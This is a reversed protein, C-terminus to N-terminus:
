RLLLLEGREEFSPHSALKSFLPICAVAWFFIHLLNGTSVFGSDFMAIFVVIWLASISWINTKFNKIALCRFLYVWIGFIFVGAAGSQVLVEVYFNDLSFRDGAFGNDQMVFDSYGNIANSWLDLRLSVLENILDYAEQGMSLFYTSLGAFIIVLVGGTMLRFYRVMLGLTMALAANRSGVITLFLPFLFFHFRFKGKDMMMIYLFIPVFFCAAAEKPHWYGLLLRSRGYNSSLFSEFGSQMVGYLAPILAITLMLFIIKLSRLKIIYIIGNVLLPMAASFVIVMGAYFYRGGMFYIVAVPSFIAVSRLSLVSLYVLSVAAIFFMVVHKILTDPQRFDVNINNIVYSLYYILMLVAGVRGLHVSRKSLWKKNMLIGFYKKVVGIASVLKEDDCSFIYVHM